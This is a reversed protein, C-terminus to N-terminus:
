NNCHGTYLVWGLWMRFIILFCVAIMVAFM